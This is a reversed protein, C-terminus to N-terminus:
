AASVERYLTLLRDVSLDASFRGEVHRRAQEGLRLRLPEDLLLRELARALGVPDHPKVLLGTVGDVVLEPTGGVQTGVVPRGATMAELIVRSLSDPIISPVAVVDAAAYLGLVLANPLPGLRRLWPAEPLPTAGEGVVVFVADPVAAVVLPAAAALDATGKGPSLKGVYLVVRRGELGHARRAAAAREPSAPALLPPITHITEIRRVGELLGSRRYIGLIGDSVGVLADLRRLFRQKFCADLWGGLFALKTALRSRRGRMYLDFYEQSCERWLKGVGCDDPRRDGHHLCMPAPDILSGDRITLLMPVGTLRRAILGPLLMHKNQAHIVQAGEKSVARALQLGCWIPFLPNLLVRQSVVARGAPRKVPFPFRRVRFGDREELAPAGYNPTVVVVREGHRALARALAETSWEAGGPAHPPFYENALCINM